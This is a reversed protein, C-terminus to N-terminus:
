EQGTVTMNLAASVGILRPLRQTGGSGPLVGLSVEPLGLKTSRLAIRYHCALALELGGGLVTGHLVAIVPVRLSELLAHIDNPDPAPLDARDFERIDAGAMFTRGACRLLVAHVADDQAIRTLASALAERVPQSSAKVPPNDSTVIGVGDDNTYSVLESM